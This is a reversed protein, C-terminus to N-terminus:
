HLGPEHEAEHLRLGERRALTLPRDVRLRHGFAQDALDDRAADGGAREGNALDPERGREDFRQQLIPVHLAGFVAFAARRDLIVDGGDGGEGLPRQRRRRHVGLRPPACSAWNRRLSAWILRSRMEWCSITKTTKAASNATNEIKRLPKRLVPLMSVSNCFTATSPMRPSAIAITTSPRPMSMENIAASATGGPRTSCITCSPCPRPAEMPAASANVM